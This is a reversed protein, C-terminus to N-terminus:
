KQINLSDYYKTLYRRVTKESRENKPENRTIEELAQRIIKSDKSIGRIPNLNRFIEYYLNEIDLSKIVTPKQRQSAPNSGTQITQYYEELRKVDEDSGLYFLDRYGTETNKLDYRQFEKNYTFSFIPEKFTGWYKVFKDLVSDSIEVKQTGPPAILWKMIRLSDSYGQVRGKWFEVDTEPNNSVMEHIFKLSDQNIREAVQFVKARESESLDNKSVLGELAKRYIETAEVDNLLRM